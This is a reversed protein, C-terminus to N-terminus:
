EVGHYWLQHSELSWLTHALSACTEGLGYPRLIFSGTLSGLHEWVNSECHVRFDIKTVVLLDFFPNCLWLRHTITMVLAVRLMQLTMGERPLSLPYSPPPMQELVHISPLSADWRLQENGLLVVLETIPWPPRLAM